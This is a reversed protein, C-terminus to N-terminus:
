LKEKAQLSVNTDGTGGDLLDWTTDPLQRHLAPTQGMHRGTLMRPRGTTFVSMPVPVQHSLRGALLLRDQPGSPHIPGPRGWPSALREMHGGQVGESEELVSHRPEEGGWLPGLFSDYLPCAGM